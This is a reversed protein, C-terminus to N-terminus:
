AIPPRFPSDFRQAQLTPVKRLLPAFVPMPTATVAWSTALWASAGVDAMHLLLHGGLTHDPDPTGPGHDTTGADAALAAHEMSHLQGMQNLMPRIIVGLVLLVLLSTRLVNLIPPLSRRMRYLRDSFLGFHRRGM